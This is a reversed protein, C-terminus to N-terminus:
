RPAIVPAVPDIRRVPEVVEAPETPPVRPVRRPLQGPLAGPLPRITRPGEDKLRAWLVDPDTLFFSSREFQYVHVGRGLPPEFSPSTVVENQGLERYLRPMLDAAAIFADAGDDLRVVYIPDRGPFAGGFVLERVVFSRKDRVPVRTRLQVERYFDVSTETIAPRVWLKRGVLRDADAARIHLPLSAAAAVIVRFFARRNM